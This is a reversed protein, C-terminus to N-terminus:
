ASNWTAGSLLDNNNMILCCSIGKLVLTSVVESKRSMQEYFKHQIHWNVVGDFTRSFYDLNDVLVRSIHIAFNHRIAMDDDTSPLLSIALQRLSVQPLPPTIDSLDSFDIRNAVAYSHFHHISATKQVDCRMYRQKVTKDINDGCLRYMTYRHQVSSQQNGQQWESSTVPPPSGVESTDNESEDSSSSTSIEEESTIPSIDQFSHDSDSSYSEDSSTFSDDEHAIYHRITFEVQM